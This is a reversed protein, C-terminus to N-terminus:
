TSALERDIAQLLDRRSRRPGKGRRGLTIYFESGETAHFSVERLRAYGLAHLDEVLLRFSHPVFCWNHVDKYFPTDRVQRMLERSEAASHISTYEGPAGSYWALQHAKGVAYLHHEAVAGASPQRRRAVHADVVRGLGTLPRFRDFCYRKDPVVLSLVGDDKLISECDALFSVLDPTHEIVHSAIIWDYHKPRGTLETYSEGRWVFDVEEIRDLEVPHNAYKALLAQRDVHDIVHVRYGESKPAIPDISPGIEVGLGRKAITSLVRAKRGPPRASSAVSRPVSGHLQALWRTARHRLAERAPEIELECTFECPQTSPDLRLHAAPHELFFRASWNRGSRALQVRREESYEGAPGPLYFCPSEIAGTRAELRVTATYWGDAFHRGGPATAILIPDVTGAHWVPRDGERGAERPDDALARLELNV